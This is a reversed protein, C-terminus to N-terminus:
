SQIVKDFCMKIRQALFVLAFNTMLARSQKVSKAFHM